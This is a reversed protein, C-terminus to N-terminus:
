IEGGNRDHRLMHGDYGSEVLKALQKPFVKAFLNVSWKVAKEESRGFKCHAFEHLLTIISLEGYMVITNTTPHYQGNNQHDPEHMLYPADIGYITSFDALLEKMCNLRHEGKRGGRWPKKRKFAWLAKIIEPKHKVSEDIMPHTPYDWQVTMGSEAFHDNVHNQMANLQENATAHISDPWREAAVSILTRNGLEMENKVSEEGFMRVLDDLQRIAEERNM